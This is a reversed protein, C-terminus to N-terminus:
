IYPPSQGASLCVAGGHQREVPVVFPHPDVLCFCPRPAGDITHKMCLTYFAFAFLHNTWFM